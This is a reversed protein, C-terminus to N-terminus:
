YIFLYLKLNYENGSNIFNGSFLKISFKLYIQFNYIFNFSLIANM